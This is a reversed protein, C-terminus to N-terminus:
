HIPWEFVYQYILLEVVAHLVIRIMEVVKTLLPPTSDLYFM